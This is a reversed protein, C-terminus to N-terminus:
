TQSKARLPATDRVACVSFYRKLSGQTTPAAQFVVGISRRRSASMECRPLDAMSQKIFQQRRATAAGNWKLSGKM